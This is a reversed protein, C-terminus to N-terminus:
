KIRRQKAVIKKADIPKSCYMCKREIFSEILILILKMEIWSLKDLCGPWNEKQRAAKYQFYAKKFKSCCFIVKKKMRLM